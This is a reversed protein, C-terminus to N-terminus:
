KQLHTSSRKFLQYSTWISLAKRGWRLLHVPKRISSVVLLATAGFILPRYRMVAYWGQDIPATLQQWEVAQHQLAVREAVIYELLQAKRRQLVKSRSTM